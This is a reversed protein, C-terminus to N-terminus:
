LQMYDITNNVCGQNRRWYTDSDILITGRQVDIEKETNSFPDYTTIQGKSFCIEGFISFDDTIRRGELVTLHLIDEAIQKVPVPM